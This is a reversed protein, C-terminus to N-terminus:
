VLEKPHLIKLGFREEISKHHILQKDLTVLNTAKHEIASAVINMDITTALRRCINGVIDVM